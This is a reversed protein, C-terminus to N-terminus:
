DPYVEMIEKLDDQQMPAQKGGNFEQFGDIALNLEILSMDWFEKPPIHLM